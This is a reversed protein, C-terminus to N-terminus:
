KMNPENTRSDMHCKHMYGFILNSFHHIDLFFIIIDDVKLGHMYQVSQASTLPGKM